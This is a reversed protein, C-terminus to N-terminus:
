MGGLGPFPFCPGTCIQIVSEIICCPLSPLRDLPLAYASHELFFLTLLEAGSCTRTFFSFFGLLPVLM